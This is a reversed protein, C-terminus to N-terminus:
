DLMQWYQEFRLALAAPKEVVFQRGLALSAKALERERADITARLRELADDGPLINTEIWSALVALNQHDGLMTGLKDLNVLAGGLVDPAAPEFLRTHYWHTKAAKRWEHITESDGSESAKAFGKRFRSYSKRLGPLVIARGSAGFSWGRARQRLDELQSRASALLTEEGMQSRLHRAREKLRELVPEGAPEGLGSLTEVMVAADRAVSFQAAIAKIAEKEPEYDEFAPRVLKLLARLKKSCKRLTHVTKDFDDNAGIADLGKDIQEIAIARVQDAVGSTQKFAYAM